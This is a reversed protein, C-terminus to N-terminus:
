QATEKESKGPQVLDAEFLEAAHQLAAKEIRHINQYSCGCADAIESLAYQKGPERRAHFERLRTMTEGERAKNRIRSKM